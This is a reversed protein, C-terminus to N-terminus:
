GNGCGGFALMAVLAALEPRVHHAAMVFQTQIAFPTNRLGSNNISSAEVNGAGSQAGPGKRISLM